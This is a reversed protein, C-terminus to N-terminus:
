FIAGQLFFMCLPVPEFQVASLEAPIELARGWWGYSAITPSNDDGEGLFKILYKFINLPQLITRQFFSRANRMKVIFCSSLHVVKGSYPNGIRLKRVVWLSPGRSFFFLGAPLIRWTGDCANATFQMPLDVKLHAFSFLEFRRTVPSSSGWPCYGM